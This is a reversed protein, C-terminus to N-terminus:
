QNAVIGTSSAANETKAKRTALTKQQWEDATKLDAARQEPNDCEYDARERYMLNLYAMADDYDPRLKLAQNLQDLGDEVKDQNMARIDECAKKDKLPEEPKLGLAARKEMRPAYAETWDIVGISYHEEPDNPDVALVKRHYEKAMDFKKMDFYLSALNKLASVDKQDKNLVDNFNEIALEAERNNEPSDIGPVFRSRHAVALYLRANTLNPDLEVAREFYRIATDFKAGKYAQVGKNLQDRARLKNCGSLGMLAAAVALLAAVRLTKSMM